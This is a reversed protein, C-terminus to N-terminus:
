AAPPGSKGALITGGPQVQHHQAFGISSIIAVAIGGLAALFDTQDFGRQMIVNAGEDLLAYLPLVIMCSLFISRTIEFHGKQCLSRWFLLTLVMYAAFLYPVQYQQLKGPLKIFPSEGPWHTIMALAVWYLGLWHWWRRLCFVLTLATLVGAVDAIWDRVDANRGVFQQTIEDAAGYVTMFLFTLYIARNKLDPKTGSYRAIWYLLSLILYACFHLTVDRGFVQM